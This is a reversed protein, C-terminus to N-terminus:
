SMKRTKIVSACAILGYLLFAEKLEHVTHLSAGQSEALEICVRRRKEATEADASELLEELWAEQFDQESWHM